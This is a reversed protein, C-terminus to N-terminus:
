LFTAAPVSRPAPDGRTPSHRSLALRLYHERLRRVHEDIAFRALERRAAEAMRAAGAPDRLLRVLADGLLDDDGLPVLTGTEGHRVVERLGGVDSAVVPTGAAAAELAVFSLGENDSPIAVVDLAALVAAMDEQPGVFRVAEVVGLTSALQRLSSSLEGDGVLALVCDPVQELIRPMQALLRAHGKGPSFRGIIGITPADPPMGARARWRAGCFPDPAAFLSPDIGNHLVECRAPAIRYEHVAHRRVSESICLALDTWGATARLLLRLAPSIPYHDHLHVIARRGTIRAATRGVAIGKQGAAHVVDIRRRRILGAVDGFARLDWKGRGLFIPEVGGAALTAAAPHPERLFCATVEIPSANLRPLVSLCYRTLGHALGGPYGLHDYLFLMRVTRAEGGDDAPYASPPAAASM